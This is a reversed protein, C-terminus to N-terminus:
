QMLGNLTQNINETANGIRLCLGSAFPEMDVRITASVSCVPDSQVRMTLNRSARQMSVCVCVCVCVCM